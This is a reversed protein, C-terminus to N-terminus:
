LGMVFESIKKGTKVRNTKQFIFLIPKDVYREMFEDLFDSNADESLCLIWSSIGDFLDFNSPKFTKPHNFHKIGIDFEKLESKILASYMRTDSFIGISKGSDVHIKKGVFINIDRSQAQHRAQSRAKKESRVTAFPFPKKGHKKPYTETERLYIPVDVACLDLPDDNSIWDINGRNDITACVKDNNLTNVRLADCHSLSRKDRVKIVSSETPETSRYQEFHVFRQDHQSSKRKLMQKFM